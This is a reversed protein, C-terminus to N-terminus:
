ATKNDHKKEIYIFTLRFFCKGSELPEIDMQSLYYDMKMYERMYQVSREKAEEITEAFDYLQISNRTM